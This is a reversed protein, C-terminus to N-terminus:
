LNLPEIVEIDNTVKEVPNIHSGGAGGSLHMICGARQSCTVNFFWHSNRFQRNELAKLSFYLKTLKTTPISIKSPEETSASDIVLCRLRM